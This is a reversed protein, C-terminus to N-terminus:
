GSCSVIVEPVRVASSETNQLSTVAGGGSIRYKVKIFKIGLRKLDTDQDPFDTRYFTHQGDGFDRLFRQFSRNGTYERTLVLDGIVIRLNVDGCETPSWEFTRSVPYNYNDLSQGGSKCNMELKTAHPSITADPNSDTPLGELRVKYSNQM